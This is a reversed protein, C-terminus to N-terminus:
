LSSYAERGAVREIVHDIIPLPYNDRITIANIKKFNICVILKRNKKPVMVIPSVWDTHKIEYIFEAEKLKDIEEKIKRAFTENYTYPRQRSLKADSKLPITHQCISSDVGKLDKYSWVFVDRYQKLTAILFQEEEETLDTAIYVPKPEEGPEALDIKMAKKPGDYSTGPEKLESMSQQVIIKRDQITYKKYHSPVDMKDSNADEDTEMETTWVDKLTKKLKNYKSKRGTKIMRSRIEWGESLKTGKRELKNKKHNERKKAKVFEGTIKDKVCDNAKVLRIYRTKNKVLPMPKDKKGRSKRTRKQRYHEQRCPKQNPFDYFKEPKTIYRRECESESSREDDAEITLFDDDLLPLDESLSDMFEDEIQKEIDIVTIEDVIRKCEIELTSEEEEDSESGSELIVSAMQLTVLDYGEDDCFKTPTLENVCIDLTSLIQTWGFPEFLHELFPEPIYADDKGGSSSDVSLLGLLALEFPDTKTSFTLLCRSERKFVMPAVISPDVCGIEHPEFAFDKGHKALMEEFCKKEEQTLFGECGNKKAVNKYKTEVHVELGIEERPCKEEKFAEIAQYLEMSRVEVVENELHLTSKVIADLESMTDVFFVQEFLGLVNENKELLGTEKM